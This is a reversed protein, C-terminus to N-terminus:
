IYVWVFLVCLIRRACRFLSSVCLGAHVLAMQKTFEAEHIVTPKHSEMDKLHQTYADLEEKAEATQGAFGILVM